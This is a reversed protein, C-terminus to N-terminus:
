DIITVEADKPPVFKFLSESIEKDFEINSFEVYTTNGVSDDFSVEDITKKDPNLILQLKEIQSNKDKPELSLRVRGKGIQNEEKVKFEDSIHGKGMLFAVLAHPQSRKPNAAKLITLKEDKDPPYDVLWVFKGDVLILSHEPEKTEWRFRGGKKVHILGSSKKEKQLLKLKLKKSVDMKISDANRYHDEVEKLLASSKAWLSSLGVFSVMVLITFGKLYRYKM